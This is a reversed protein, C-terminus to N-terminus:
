YIVEPSRFEGVETMKFLLKLWSKGVVGCVAGFLVASKQDRFFIKRGM